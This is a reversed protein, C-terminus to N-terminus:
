RAQSSPQGAGDRQAWELWGFLPAVMVCGGVFDGFLPASASRPRSPTLAAVTLHGGATGADQRGLGWERRTVRLMRSPRPGDAETGREADTSDPTTSLNPPEAPRVTSSAHAITGACGQPPGGAPTQSTTGAHAFRRILTVNAFSITDM